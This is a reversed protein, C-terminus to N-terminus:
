NCSINKDKARKVIKRKIKVAFSVINKHKALLYCINMMGPSYGFKLLREKFRLWLEGSDLYSMAHIITYWPHERRMVRLFADRVDSAFSLYKDALHLYGDFDLLFRKVLGGENQFSENDGRWFVLSGKIYRLRCIRRTISSFLSAALGYASKDFDYDYGSELWMERRLVISSWFSFLAGISDAKNCYEILENKNHLNFVRDKVDRSLWYRERIPRLLVDCITINCLYIEYGPIIEKLIRKIAGPKLADDDSFLWCYRGHALTIAKAMDRDVGGNEELRCYVLNKFKQQYKLVVEETNDTSAGDVVVIEISDDAQSIVSEIARGIFGARNRTPMCISINIKDM